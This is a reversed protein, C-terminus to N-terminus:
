PHVTHEVAFFNQAVLTVVAVAIAGIGGGIWRLVGLSTAALQELNEMRRVLGPTTEGSEDIGGVLLAHTLAQNAEIVALRRDLGIDSRFPGEVEKHWGAKFGSVAYDDHTPDSM